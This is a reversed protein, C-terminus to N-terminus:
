PPCPELLERLAMPGRVASIEQQGVILLRPAIVVSAMAAM